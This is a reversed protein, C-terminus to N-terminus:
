AEDNGNHSYLWDHCRDAVKVLLPIDGKGFSDSRAWKDNADKYIRTFTVNHWVKGADDAHKWVAGCIRGIREEHVPRNGADNPNADAKGKPGPATASKTAM